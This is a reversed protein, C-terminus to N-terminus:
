AELASGHMVLLEQSRLHDMYRVRWEVSTEDRQPAILPIDRKWEPVLDVGIFRAVDLVAKAPDELFDEYTVRHVTIGAAIFVSEWFSKQAVIHNVCKQLHEHDYPLPQGRHIGSFWVGSRQARSHSIAQGVLDDRTLYVVHTATMDRYLDPHSRSINLLNNVFMKYSFVGNPSTRLAQVKTWYDRANLSDLRQYLDSRNPIAPYEMPAGICGTQWLHECFITSGSRPLTAIMVTKSPPSISMPYDFEAQYLRNIIHM